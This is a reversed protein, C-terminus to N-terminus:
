TEVLGDTPEDVDMSEKSKEKEKEQEREKEKEKEKKEKERRALEEELMAKGAATLGTKGSYTAAKSAARIEKQKDLVGRLTSQFQQEYSDKISKNAVVQSKVQVIKEDLTALM